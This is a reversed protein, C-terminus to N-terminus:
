RVAGAVPKLDFVLQGQSGAQTSVSLLVPVKLVVSINTSNDLPDMTMESSAVLSSAALARRLQQLDIATRTVQALDIVLRRGNRDLVAHFFGPEGHIPQGNRDGYSLAIAQGGSSGPRVRVALLSFEDASQGGHLAGASIPSSPRGAKVSSPDPMAFTASASIWILGFGILQISFQLSVRPALKSVKSREKQDRKLLLQEDNSLL